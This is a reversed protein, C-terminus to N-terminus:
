TSGAARRRCGGEARRNRDAHPQGGEFAAQAVLCRDGAARHQPRRGPDVLREGRRALAAGEDRRHFRAQPRIECQGHPGTRRRGAPVYFNHVRIRRGGAEVIASIHRSDGVNCYDRREVDALPLRSILAVGHYGKQGHVEIHRYGLAKFAKAPFADNPCKTEQLCLVDPAQGKLLKAVLPRRLRVSNINWTAVTFAM